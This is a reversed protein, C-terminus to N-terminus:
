QQTKPVHVVIGDLSSDLQIQCCLRSADTPEESTVELMDEELEVRAPLAGTWAEDVFVHCTACTLEGGCEGIIGPVLNATAAQMVSNGETAEVEQKTGDPQVFVVRSM